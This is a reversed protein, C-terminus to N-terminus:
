MMRGPGPPPAAALVGVRTFAAEAGMRDQPDLKLLVQCTAAAKATEGGRAMEIGYAMLAIMWPRTDEDTWWDVKRGGKYFPRWVAWGLECAETLLRLREDPDGADDALAVRAWISEPDRELVHRAFRAFIAPDEPRARYLALEAADADRFPNRVRPRGAEHPHDSM